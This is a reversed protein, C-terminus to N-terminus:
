DETVWAPDWEEGNNYQAYQDTPFHDFWWWRYEEIDGIYNKNYDYAYQFGSNKWDDYSMPFANSSGGGTAGGIVTVDGPTTTTEGLLILPNFGTRKAM